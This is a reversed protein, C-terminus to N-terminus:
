GMDQWALGALDIQGIAGPVERAFGIQLPLRKDIVTAAAAAATQEAATVADLAVMRSPADVALRLQKQAVPSPGQFLAGPMSRPLGATASAAFALLGGALLALARFTIM